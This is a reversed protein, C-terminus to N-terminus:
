RGRKKKDQRRKEEEIDDIIKRVVEKLLKIIEDYHSAM